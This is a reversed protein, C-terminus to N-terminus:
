IDSNLLRVTIKGFWRELDVRVPFLVGSVTRGFFIKFDDFNDEESKWKSKLRHGGIPIIKTGCITANGNYSKPRDNKLITKGLEKTLLDYRRRGDFINLKMNCPENKKIREIVKIIATIPDIVNVLSTKTVNHVKKLDLIPDIEYNLFKNDNNWILSSFRKKDDYIGNTSFKNPYWINELKSSNSILESKYQYFTNVFGQTKTNAKVIIKNDDLTLNVIVKGVTVNGWQINYLFDEKVSQALTENNFIVAFIFFSLLCFQKIFYLFFFNFKLINNEELLLYQHSQHCM